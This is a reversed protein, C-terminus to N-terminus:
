AKRQIWANLAVMIRESAGHYPLIEHALWSPFILMMGTEPQLPMAEWSFRGEINDNGADMYMPSFGRKDHFRVVGSDPRDPVKDGAQIYYIASWSANPHDHLTQFGGKRTIHFWAHYQFLLKQMQDTSYQNVHQVFDRLTGHMLAALKQVPEDPWTFLDFRSEFLAGFQTTFRNPNVVKDADDREKRLFLEKLEANLKDNDEFRVQAVPTAFWANIVANKM